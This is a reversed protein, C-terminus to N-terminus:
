LGFWSELRCRMARLPSGASWYLTALRRTLPKRYRRAAAEPHPTKRRMALTSEVVELRRRSTLSGGHDLFDYHIGPLHAIPAEMSLRLWYDWDEVCALSPDYPGAKEAVSRRYLFCGGVVNLEPLKEPTRNIVEDRVRGREDVIRFDTYVLGCEPHKELFGVMASLATPHYRNDDSTWTWFDGRAKSFGKNLAAPLGQNAQTLVIVRSDALALERAVKLTNDSSGDNVIIVELERFTQKLCSKVAGGLLEARNHTPIVISARPTM